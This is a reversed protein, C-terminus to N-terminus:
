AWSLIEDFQSVGEPVRFTQTLTESPSLAVPRLDESTDEATAKTAIDRMASWGLFVFCFDIFLPTSNGSGGENPSMYATQWHYPVDFHLDRLGPDRYLQYGCSLVGEHLSMSRVGGM